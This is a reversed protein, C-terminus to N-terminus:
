YKDEFMFEFEGKLLWHVKGDIRVRFYYHRIAKRRNRSAKTM